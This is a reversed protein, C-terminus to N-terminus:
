KFVNGMEFMPLYIAVLILGVLVGIVINIIPELVISFRKSKQIVENNYQENLKDFVFSTKNTEEAVRLLAIMKSDFFGTSGLAISLNEGELMQSQAELLANELPIFRIMNQVMRLAELISVKAGVLLATAETFKATHTTKIFSGLLPIKLISHDIIYRVRKKSKIFNFILLSGIIIIIIILFYDELFHSWNLVMKTLYPLEVQNQRFIEEFMPVVFKLMFGFILIATTLLIIPYSIANILDKRQANKRKFYGALTTIVKDLTGSEEGIKISYYEYPSFQTTKELANSFSLGDTTEKFITQFLLKSKENNESEIVLQLAENLRIGSSLLVSLEEYLRERNKSSFNKNTTFSIEKNLISGKEKRKKEQAIKEIKSVNLGM